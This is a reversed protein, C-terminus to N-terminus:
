NSIAHHATPSNETLPLLTYGNQLCYIIVDEIANLTWEKVDHCLVISNAKGEIGEIVNKTVVKSDQTEGADGSLVNWDFYTYGKEEAQAVLRTMIGTSYQASIGNSSGGPFRMLRTRQGTQAEILNQMKEFDAWFAEDSSYIEDYRHNYTHVGISHGRRFEEGILEPYGYWATVFFTAKVDYKDLIDLLKETYKYPGDDFTLYVFRDEGNNNSVVRVLREVKAKNKYSDEVEYVLKYDGITYIDLDGTVKVNGTIDGDVDDTATFSDNFPVALRWVIESGGELSIEPAVRDDYPIKREVTTTNGFSDTATYIVKDKTVERVVGATVDGDHLDTATYGEEKYEENPKTYYDPNTTLTIDPGTTDSVTVSRTAEAHKGWHDFSYTLVQEGITKTDIDGSITVEPTRNFFSVLPFSYFGEAGPESYDSGYEINLKDDGRLHVEAVANTIGVIFFAALLLIIALVIGIFIRSTRKNHNEGSNM